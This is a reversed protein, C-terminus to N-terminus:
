SLGELIATLDFAYSHLSNYVGEMTNKLGLLSFDRQMTALSKANKTTTAYRSEQGTQDLDHFEKVVGGTTQLDPSVGAGQMKLHLEEVKVWLRLLNHRELVKEPDAIEKLEVGLGVIEKLQLELYQRYLFIIPFTIENPAYQTKDAALREILIAAAKHFGDIYGQDRGILNVWVLDVPLAGSAFAKDGKTAWRREDNM